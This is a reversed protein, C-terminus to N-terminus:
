FDQRKLDDLCDKLADDYSMRRARSRREVSEHFEIARRFESGDDREIKNKVLYGKLRTFDRRGTVIRTFALGDWFRRGFPKGKQAKTIHRAVLGTIVKMFSQILERAKFSVFLHIHDRMIELGHIKIEYAKAKSEVIRKVNLRHTLFSKTGRAHSSKLVIHLPRKRDLPRFVKRRGSTPGGHSIRAKSFESKNKFLSRQIM